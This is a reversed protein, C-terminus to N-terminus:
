YEWRQANAVLFDCFVRVRAVNKMEEPYVLYCEMEPMASQPLIRVLGAESLALYDPLV